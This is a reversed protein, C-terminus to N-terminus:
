NVETYSSKGKEKMMLVGSYKVYFRTEKQIPDNQMEQKERNVEKM